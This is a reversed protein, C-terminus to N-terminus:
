EEPLPDTENAESIEYEDVDESLLATKWQAEETCWICETHSFLDM